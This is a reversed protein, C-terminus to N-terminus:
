ETRTLLFLGMLKIRLYGASLKIPTKLRAWNKFDSLIGVMLIDRAYDGANLESEKKRICNAGFTGCYDALIADLGKSNDPSAIITQRGIIAMVKKLSCDYAPLTSLGKTQAFSNTALLYLVFTAILKM